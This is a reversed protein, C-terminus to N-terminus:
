GNAADDMLETKSEESLNYKTVMDHSIVGGNRLYDVAEGWWQPKDAFRKEGTTIQHDIPTAVNDQVNWDYESQVGSIGFGKKLARTEAVKCIMSEPDTNWVNKSWPKKPDNVSKDFTEFDVWALTPEGGKRYVFCYAGIIDGRDDGPSFTHNVKGSPIDIQCNDNERVASSRIGNFAPSKQAKSLFGDRGTFMILNNKHDKYCWIEKNFPNLDVSKCVNLFFALETGTAGKAVQTSIVAVQNPEYGTLESVKNYMTVSEESM